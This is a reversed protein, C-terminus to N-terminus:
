QTRALFFGGLFFVVLPLAVAYHGFTTVPTHGSARQEKGEKGKGYGCAKGRTGQIAHRRGLTSIGANQTICHTLIKYISMARVARSESRSGCVRVVCVCVGMCVGVCVCMCVYMCVYM